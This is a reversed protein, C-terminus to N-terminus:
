SVFLVKGLRGSRAHDALAARFDPLPHRASVPAEARGGAFAEAVEGLVRRRESPAAAGWWRTRWFGRVSAQRFLLPGAELPLPKGSLVGYVALTGGDSLCSAALAGTDGGVADLAGALGGTAESIARRVPAPDDGEEFSFAADYGLASLADASVTRRALGAVRLGRTKGIQLAFRAVAGNAATCLVWDGETAAVLDLLLAATMPNVFLQAAAEDPLADPPHFLRDPITTLHTQWTPGAALPVARDGEAWGEVGAGVAEVIGVGEHGGIAPLEPRVGYRGKIELLDAPNIPRHTLRLRIEQPGPPRVAVEAHRLVDAPPGFRDYVLAPM